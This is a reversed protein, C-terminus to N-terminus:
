PRAPEIVTALDFYDSWRRLKGDVVEAVGAVQLEIRRDTGHFTIHDIRETFVFPGRSAIELVDIQIRAMAAVEVLHGRVEEIGEFCRSPVEDYVGDDAFWGALAAPDDAAWATCFDIVLREEATLRDRDGM